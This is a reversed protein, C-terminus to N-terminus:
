QAFVLAPAGRPDPSDLILGPGHREPDEPKISYREFDFPLTAGVVRSKGGALRLLWFPINVRSMRGDSPDWILVHLAEVPAGTGGEPKISVTPKSSGRERQIEILAHQGAF